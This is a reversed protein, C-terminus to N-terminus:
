CRETDGCMCNYRGGCGRIVRLVWVFEVREVCMCQCVIVGMEREMGWRGLVCVCKEGYVCVCVDGFACEFETVGCLCM